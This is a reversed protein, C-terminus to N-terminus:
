FIEKVYDSIYAARGIRIERGNEEWSYSIDIRYVDIFGKVQSINMKPNFQIMKVGIDVLEQPDLDLPLANYARLMRETKAIRDDLMMNAYLRSNLYSINTLSIFLSQFIAVIGLSLVVLTVMIEIFTFGTRSPSQLTKNKREHLFFFRSM